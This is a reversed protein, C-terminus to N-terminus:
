LCYIESEQEKLYIIYSNVQKQPYIKSIAEQYLSVQEKHTQNFHSSSKYDFVLIRDEFEVMLDLQKRENKYMIPQEKYIKGNKILKLFQTNEILKSLRLQISNIQEKTLSLKFKSLFVDWIQEISLANFDPLIELAYHLATGFQVAKIDTEQKTKELNQQNGLFDVLTLSQTEQKKEEKIAKQLIEGKSFKSLNLKEFISKETKSVILLSTKARTFAVYQVNLQDEEKQKNLKDKAKKYENDVFERNKSRYYIRKLNSSEYDFMLPPSFNSAGRLRDLVIVHEFQLGKAKFITLIRVGQGSKTVSKINLNEWNYIFSEIDDFDCSSELLKIINKDTSNIKLTKIINKLIEIPKKSLDFKVKFSEDDWKLGLLTNTNALYLSDKFYCFKVFELIARIEKIHILSLNAETSLSIEKFKESLAAEIIKADENQWCLIAIENKIGKQYLKEFAGIAGKIVDDTKLVEVYGNTSKSEQAKQPIYNNMKNIFTENAFDVIFKKSRYNTDLNEIKIDLNKAVDDFLEKMGGRFRYISQKTDGVYFFSGIKDDAGLGSIAEEILPFLIQYQTVSTDQFEDILIHEIKSDLRFYLFDKDIKEYLLTYVFNTLDLFSLENKEKALFLRSNEYIEYLSFLQNLIFDERQIHYKRVLEKLEFFKEDLEQTYIKSFTRYNLTDKTIITSDLLSTIDDFSFMRIATSSANQKEIFNKIEQAKQLIQTDNPFKIDKLKFNIQSKKEYIQELTEFIRDFKINKMLCFYIFSKYLNSNKYIRKIFEDKLHEEYISEGLTFDPMIGLHLSFKRLIQSFFSDITQIKLNSNLFEEQLFNRKELISKKSIGLLKELSKLENPKNELELFTEFVREKMENAAKNTFTLALTKSPKAGSLILAIYRVSLAFTKGSGASAKLALKLQM